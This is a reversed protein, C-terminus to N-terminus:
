SHLLKNVEEIFIVAKPYLEDVMGQDFTDKM